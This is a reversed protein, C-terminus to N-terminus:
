CVGTLGVFGGLGESRAEVMWCGTLLFLVRIDFLHNIGGKDFSKNSLFYYFFYYFYIATM